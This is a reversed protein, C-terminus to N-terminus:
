KFEEILKVVQKLEAASLNGKESKGYLTLFMIQDDATLWYYIVRLGGSGRIVAGADPQAMLHNQLARYDEDELYRGRLKSFLSAEIFIM